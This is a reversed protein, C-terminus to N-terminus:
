RRDLLRLGLWLTRPTAREEAGDSTRGALLTANLLNEFRGVLQLGRGIPVRVSGDVTAAGPLRLRNLDDEYQAGIYRLQLAAGADGLTWSARAAASFAPTQAPRLGTLEAGLGNERVRGRTWSADASLSWPGRRWGAGAEVGTVAIASLNRRQRFADGAPVFGVQPFVGPGSGLTVNAIADRLRNRFLTLQASATRGQWEMGAEVGTLREPKLGPNAATADNGLRFPRFLENLTPPRWGTYAATRVATGSGLSLRGAARATGLWETRAPYRVDQALIGTAIVEDRFFGSAIRLRDIRAGGTLLLPGESWSAEGFAGAHATRGGSSRDRTAVGAVYSGLEESRGRMLRGDTGLRLELGHGLPPRVEVSWGVSRGPVHYQLSTRRATIRAADTAAFSSEFERWQAYGLASWEWEGRGVLRIAADGGESRIDSFRLGRSREDIFGSASGQLEVDSSVPGVWRLRAAVNRYSAREDAPGRTGATVPVFGDGRSGHLAVALLGSGLRESAILRGEASARSGVSIDALTQPETASSLEITGALAGPGNAVSGGGRMVRAEKLASPDYAPWNVWGGFPDTQPVGDLLLLARSSANGGLARLTVGQSTPNASRADSRRFLQVGAVQQLVLELGTAGSERLEERSLVTVALPQESQADRLGRGVIVIEPPADAIIM